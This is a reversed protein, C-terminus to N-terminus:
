ASRLTLAYDPSLDSPADKTPSAKSQDSMAAKYGHREALQLIREVQSVKVDGFSFHGQHGDLGLLVTEAMCAYIHGAPMPLGLLTFDPADHIRILGSRLIRVDPREQGVSDAVDHPVALDCIVVPSPALHRAHIIPEAASSGSVIIDCTQLGDLNDFCLVPAKAGLSQFATFLEAGSPLTPRTLLEAAIKTKLMAGAIGTLPGREGTKYQVVEQWAQACISEAVHQIRAISGRSGVLALAGVEKAMVKAHTSCINGAAGVVGLRSTHLDIGLESCAQRANQLGVGVTLANSTTLGIDFTASHQCNLTAISVHGGFGIVECGQEVALRVTANVRDRIWELRGAKHMRDIQASTAAILYTSLLVREGTASTFPVTEFRFPEVFPQVNELLAELQADPISRVSPDVRKFAALDEIPLVFAVKRAGPENIMIPKPHRGRWDEEDVTRMRSRNAAYGLLRGADAHRLCMLARRLADVIRPFEVPDITASPQLRVTKMASLAPAVRIGEVHLLYSALGYGILGHAWALRLMASESREVGHLE